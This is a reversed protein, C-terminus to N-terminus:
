YHSVMYYAIGSLTDELEHDCSELYENRLHGHEDRVFYLNYEENYEITWHARDNHCYAIYGWYVHYTGKELETVAFEYRPLNRAVYKSQVKTCIKTLDTRVAGETRMRIDEM